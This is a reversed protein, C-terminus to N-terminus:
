PLRVPARTEIVKGRQIKLLPEFDKLHVHTAICGPDPPSCVEGLERVTPGAGAGWVSLAGLGAEVWVRM